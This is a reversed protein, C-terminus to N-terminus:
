RKRWARYCLYWGSIKRRFATLSDTPKVYVRRLAFPEALVSATGPSIACAASYGAERVAVQAAADLAGYPYCFTCVPEGIIKELEQKSGVVERALMDAGAAQLNAHTAGHSGIEWGAARLKKLQSADLCGLRPLNKGDDWFNHGGVAQSVVYVTAKFGAAELIPFANELVSDLADDFTFVVSRGAVPRDKLQSVLLSRYGAQRLYDVQAQFDRIRVALHSDPDPEPQIKHYMLIPLNMGQSVVRTDNAYFASMRKKKKKQM